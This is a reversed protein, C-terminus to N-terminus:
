GNPSTPELSVKAKRTLRAAAERLSKAKHHTSCLVQTNGPDLDAGGLSRPIIHDVIARGKISMDTTCGPEACVRGDRKLTDARLQKWARTQYFPDSM